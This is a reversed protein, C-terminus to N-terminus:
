SPDRRWVIRGDVVTTVVRARDLEHRAVQWPVDLLCLDAPEGVSISTGSRGPHILPSQYLALAQEPSLQEGRGLSRGAATRREVAARIGVWPDFPGFPADSGAALPVGAEIWGRLRYLWPQDDPDVQALYREGHEFVFGPQTVVPVGLRRVVAVVDPPAVSAHEIRHPGPGAAGLASAALVLSERTVCHLAVGRSGAGKIQDVLDDFEPLARDILMIKLQGTAVGGQGAAPWGVPTSRDGGRPQNATALLDPGGLLVVRQRLMTAARAEAIAALEEPGNDPSADTIGTVGAAALALSVPGLQPISTGVAQRLWGDLEYLVGTPRGDPFREVGPDSLHDVGLRRIAAGNLIWAHGSRHQVRVWTASRSGLLADLGDATLPGAVSEDYGYGRIWTGPGATSAARQLVERLGGADIVEPPGVSVSTFRAAVSFLHLHHDHLGAILAGGRGDVVLDAGGRGVPPAATGREISMIRGRSVVVTTGPRGGVEVDVFTLDGRVSRIV